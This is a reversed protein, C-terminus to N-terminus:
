LEIIDDSEQLNKVYINLSQNDRIVGIEDNGNLKLIEGNELIIEYINGLENTFFYNASKQAFQVIQQGCITVSTANDLDYFRFSDLGLVGYFINLLIKQVLQRLSYFDYLQDNGEKGYKNALDQSIVREDFWKSLITPIIGRIDTRYMVGSAALSYKNEIIMEKIKSVSMKIIDGQYYVNYIYENDKQFVDMNYELIKGIKTEPSINLTMIINPYMSTADLDILWDYLGPIPEKVFAGEFHFGVEYSTLISVDLPNKLSFKNGKYLVYEIDYFKSKSKKFRLIGSKPVDEQINEKCIIETCGIDHNRSLKIQKWTKKNTVIKNNNKTFTLCAGDVIRSSTFIDEYPIHAKHAVGIALNIFTNKKDIEVILVVDNINYKCYGVIDNKYFADLDGEFTMKGYGLELRSIFDLKYMPQENQTYNKYLLMYDLHVVGYIMYERRMTSWTVIGIPSLRSAIAKGVVKCSRNYLYPVDFRASNWGTILTVGLQEYRSYFKLLLDRESNCSVIEVENGKDDAIFGNELKGEVDLIFASYSNTPKFYYSIATIEQEALDALPFGEDSKVEIDFFFERHGTAVEDSTHYLDILTRMEPNVDSEYMLGNAIDSESWGSVRKVRQNDITTYTGKPDLKYGYRKYPFNDYGAKDDWLHILNTERQYNICYYM